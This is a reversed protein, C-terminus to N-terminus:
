QQDLRWRRQSGAGGLSFTGNTDICGNLDFVGVNTVTVPETNYIQAGGNEDIVTGGSVVLSGGIAQTGTKALVLTGATVLNHGVGNFGTGGFTVTDNGIKTLTCTSPGTVQGIFTMDGVGGITANAVLVCQDGSPFINTAATASSNILAGLGNPGVGGLTIGHFVEWHGNVDLAGANTAFINAQGSYTHNTGTGDLRVTGNNVMLGQGGIVNGHNTIDQHLSLLGGGTVMVQGSSNGNTCSFIVTGDGIIHIHISNPGLVQGAMNLTTGGPVGNNTANIFWDNTVPAINITGIIDPQVTYTFPTTGPIGATIGCPSSLGLANTFYLYGGTIAYNGAVTFNTAANIVINDILVNGNVVANTDSQAFILTETGDFPPTVGGVWNAATSLNENAGGGIWTASTQAQFGLRSLPDLHRSFCPAM